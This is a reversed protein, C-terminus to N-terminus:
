SGLRWESAQPMLHGTAGRTAIQSPLASLDTNPSQQKVVSTRLM